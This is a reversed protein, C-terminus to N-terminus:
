SILPAGQDLHTYGHFVDHLMLASIFEDVPNGNATSFPDPNLHLEIEVAVQEGLSVSM